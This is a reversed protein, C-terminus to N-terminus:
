KKVNNILSSNNKNFENLPFYPLVSGSSVKQDIIIKDIDGYIKRMTDLYIRKRTVDKAEKYQYYLALFRKADGFAEAEVKRKYAESKEIMEAANGRARPIIDNAYAQAENIAREKDAKATQVDRFADIVQAPPDVRRLQVLTIRIGSEYSDLIEQLLDKSELEIQNKGDSLAESIPTRAIIERMASQAAQRITLKPQAINFTFKEIDSIQWQVQFEIDVINEDGTLMLNEINDYNRNRRSNYRSRKSSNSSKNYGFEESNVATVRQKIVKSVPFPVHYNLGPTAIGHFKGFYLVIANEDPDVKYFGTALWFTLFFLITLSIYKKPSKSFNDFFDGNNNSGNNNSKTEKNNILDKLIKDYKPDRNLSNLTKNNNQSNQETNQEWPGIIKKTAVNENEDSQNEENNIENNIENSKENKKNDEDDNKNPEQNNEPSNNNSNNNDGLEIVDEKEPEKEPAKKDEVREKWPGWPGESNLESPKLQSSRLKLFKMMVLFLFLNKLTNM